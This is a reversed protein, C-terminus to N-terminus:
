RINQTLDASNNKKLLVKYGFDAKLGFKISCIDLELDAIYLTPTRLLGWLDKNTQKLRWSIWCVMQQIIEVASWKTTQDRNTCENNNIYICFLTSHNKM